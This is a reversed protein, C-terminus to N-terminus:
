PLYVAFTRYFCTPRNETEVYYNITQSAESDFGLVNAYSDQGPVSGNTMITGRGFMTTEHFHGGRMFSIVKKTQKQRKMMLNELAVRTNAKSNDYHEYLATNGYIETTTYCEIPIDFTINKFGATKVLMELTKYIIYTLNEEGPNHYTRGVETRDHNGTVCPLHMPLGLKEIPVIIDEFLSLIAVQVQKSNGFECGKLSELKHMTASEIIDGLIPILVREVNYTKQERKVEKVFTESLHRMRERCVELNFTETKKGYHIDSLLLEMTMKRKKKSQKTKPTSKFKFTNMDSILTEIHELIDAEKALQRLIVRNQKAVKGSRMKTRVNQKLLDTNLSEGTIDLLEEYKNSYYRVNEPSIELNFKKTLSKAIQEFTKGARRQVVMFEVQKDTYKNSLNFEM